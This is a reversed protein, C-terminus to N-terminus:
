LTITVASDAKDYLTPWFYTYV